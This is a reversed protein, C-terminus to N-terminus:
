LTQLPPTFRDGGHTQAPMFTVENVAFHCVSSAKCPPLEGALSLHGEHPVRVLQGNLLLEAANILVSVQGDVCLQLAAHGLDGKAGRHVDFGVRLEVM